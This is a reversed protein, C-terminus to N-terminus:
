ISCDVEKVVVSNTFGGSVSMVCILQSRVSRWDISYPWEGEEMMDRSGVRSLMVNVNEANVM